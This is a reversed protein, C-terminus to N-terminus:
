NWTWPLDLDELRIKTMDRWTIRTSGNSCNRSYYRRTCDM